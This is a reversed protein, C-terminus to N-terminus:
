PVAVILTYDDLYFVAHTYPRVDIQYVTRYHTSSNVFYFYLFDSGSAVSQEESSGPLFYGAQDPGFTHRRGEGDIWAVGQLTTSSANVVRLTQRSSEIFINCSGLSFFALAVIAGLWLATRRKM